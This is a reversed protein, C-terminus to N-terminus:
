ILVGGRSGGTVRRQCGSHLFRSHNAWQCTSVSCVLRSHLVFFEVPPVAWVGGPASVGMSATFTTAFVM